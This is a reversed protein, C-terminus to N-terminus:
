RTADIWEVFLKDPKAGLLTEDGVPVHTQLGLAKTGDKKILMIDGAVYSLNGSGDFYKRRFVHKADYGAKSQHAPVKFTKLEIPSGGFSTEYLFVDNGKELMVVTHDVMAWIFFPDPALKTDTIKTAGNSQAYKGAEVLRIRPANM